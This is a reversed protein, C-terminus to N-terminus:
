FQNQWNLSTESPKNFSYSLCAMNKPFCANHRLFMTFIFKIGFRFNEKSEIFVLSFCYREGCVASWFIIIVWRCGTTIKQENGKKIGFVSIFHCFLNHLDLELKYNIGEGFISFSLKKCVIWKPIFVPSAEWLHLPVCITPINSSLELIIKTLEGYFCINCTSM